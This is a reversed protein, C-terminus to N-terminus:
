TTTELPKPTHRLQRRLIKGRNSKPWPEIRFEVSKPVKYGTLHLRCHAVRAKETLAPDKRVVIIKVVEGSREDPEGVAGVEAVGPHLAM